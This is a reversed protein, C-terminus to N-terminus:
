PGTLVPQILLSHITVQQIDSLYAQRMKNSVKSYATEIEKLRDPQSKFIDRLGKFANDIKVAENAGKARNATAFLTSLADRLGVKNEISPNNILSDIGLESLAKRVEKDTNLAATATEEGLLKNYEGRVDKHM